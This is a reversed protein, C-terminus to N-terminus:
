KNVKDIANVNAGKNILCEVVSLHGYDSAYHLPTNGDKLLDFPLYFAKSFVSICDHSYCFDYIM